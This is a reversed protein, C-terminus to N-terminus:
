LHVPTEFGAPKVALVSGELATLIDEATNGIFLGPVGTRSVTGMVLAVPAAENALAPIRERADGRDLQTTVEVPHAIGVTKALDRAAGALLELWAQNRRAVGRIYADLQAPSVGPAARQLLGEAPADWVHVLRIKRDFAAALRIAQGLIRLNLDGATEADAAEPDFDVAVMVPGPPLGEDAHRVVWVPVPCKRLLHLDESGMILRHLRGTTVAPKVVLACRTDLAAYIIEIFAKGHRIDIPTDAPLGAAELSGRIATRREEARARLLAEPAPGAIARLLDDGPGPEIASVCRVTGGAAEALVAARRLAGADGASGGCAVLVDGTPDGALDDTM